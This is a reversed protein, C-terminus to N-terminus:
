CNLKLIFNLQYKGDDHTNRFSFWERLIFVQEGIMQWNQPFITLNPSFNMELNNRQVRLFCKECGQRFTNASLGLLKREFDLFTTFKYNLKLSNKQEFREEPCTSILESFVPCVKKKRVFFREFRESFGSQSYWNTDLTTIISTLSGRWVRPHKHKKSTKLLEMKLKKQGVMPPFHRLAAAGKPLNILWNRFRTHM